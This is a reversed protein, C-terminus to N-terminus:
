CALHSFLLFSHAGFAPYIKKFLVLMDDMLEGLCTICDYAYFFLCVRERVVM